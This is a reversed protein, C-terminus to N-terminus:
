AAPRLSDPASPAPPVPMPAETTKAPPTEEPAPTIIAQWAAKAENYKTQANDFIKQNAKSPKGGTKEFGLFDSDLWSTLAAPDEGPKLGATAVKKMAAVFEEDTAPNLMRKSYSPMLAPNAAVSTWTNSLSTVFRKDYSQNNVHVFTKRLLQSYADGVTTKKDKRISSYDALLSGYTSKGAPPYREGVDLTKGTAKEYEYAFHIEFAFCDAEQIRRKLWENKPNLALDDSMVTREHWSHRVEHALTIMIDDDSKIDGNLQILGGYNLGKITITDKPNDDMVKSNSMEIKINETTAYDLLARGLESVRMNTMIKDLREQSHAYKVKPAAQTAGAEEVQVITAPQAVADHPKAEANFVGLLALGGAAILTIRRAKKNFAKLLKKM